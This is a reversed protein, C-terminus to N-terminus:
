RRRELAALREALEKIANVMAFSLASYNVLEPEGAIRFDPMAAAAAAFGIARGGDITGIRPELRLIEGLGAQYPESAGSLLVTEWNPNGGARYARPGLVELGVLLQVMGPPTITIKPAWSTPPGSHDSIYFSGAPNVGVGWIQGGYNSSFHINVHEGNAFIRFDCEAGPDALLQMAGGTFIARGNRELTFRDAGGAGAAFLRFIGGDAYMAWQQASGATRDETWYVANAGTAQFVGAGVSGAELRGTAGALADGLFVTGSPAITLRYAGNYFIFGRDTGYQPGTLWNQTNQPAGPDVINYAIYCDHPSTLAIPSISEVAIPTTVPGYFRCQGHLQTGTSDAVFAGDVLLQEPGGVTTQVRLSGTMTGGSLPLFRDAYAKTAAHQPDTPNAATLLLNGDPYILFQALGSGVVSIIFNGDLQRAGAQWLIGAPVAGGPLLRYQIRPSSGADAQITLPDSVNPQYITGGTLPLFRDARAFVGVNTGNVWGVLNSGDWELGIVHQPQAVPLGAYNIGLANITLGGNITQTGTVALNGGITGGSLPLYVEPGAVLRRGCLDVAPPVGVWLRPLASNMEIALEGEALGAPALDQTLTRRIRISQAM